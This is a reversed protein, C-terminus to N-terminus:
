SHKMWIRSTAQYIIHVPVQYVVPVSTWPLIIRSLCCGSTALTIASSSPGGPKEDGIWGWGFLVAKTSCCGLPDEQFCSPLVRWLFLRPQSPWILLPSLGLGLEGSLYLNWCLTSRMRSHPTVPHVAPTDSTQSRGPVEQSRPRSESYRSWALKM